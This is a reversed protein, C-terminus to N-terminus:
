NRASHADSLFADYGRQDANEFFLKIIMGPVNIAPPRCSPKHNEFRVVPAADAHRGPLNVIFQELVADPDIM